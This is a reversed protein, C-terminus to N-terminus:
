EKMSSNEKKEDSSVLTVRGILTEPFQEIYDTYSKIVKLSKYISSNICAWCAIAQVKTKLDEKGEGKSWGLDIRGTPNRFIESNKDMCFLLNNFKELKVYYFESDNTLKFHGCRDIDPIDYFKIASIVTSM